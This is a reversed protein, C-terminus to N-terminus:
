AAVQFALPYCQPGHILCPGRRFCDAGIELVAPATCQPHAGDPSGNRYNRYHRDGDAIDESTCDASNNSDSDQGAPQPIQFASLAWPAKAPETCPCSGGLEPMGDVETGITPRAEVRLARLHRGGASVATDRYSQGSHCYGLVQVELDSDIVADLPSPNEDNHHENKVLHIELMGIDLHVRPNRSRDDRPKNCAAHVPPADSTRTALRLEEFFQSAVGRCTKCQHTVCSSLQLPLIRKSEVCTRLAATPEILGVNSASRSTQHRGGGAAGAALRRGLPKRCLRSVQATRRPVSMPMHKLSPPDGETALSRAVRRVSSVVHSVLGAILAGYQRHQRACERKFTPVILAPRAKFASLHDRHNLLRRIEPGVNWRELWRTRVDLQLAGMALGFPEVAEIVAHQNLHGGPRCVARVPLAAYRPATM